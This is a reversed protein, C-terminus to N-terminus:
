RPTRFQLTLRALREGFRRADARERDSVSSPKGGTIAIPGLSGFGDDTVGGAIIFRM